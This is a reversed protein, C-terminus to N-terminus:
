RCGDVGLARAYARIRPGIADAGDASGAALARSLRRLARDLSRRAPLGARPVDAPLGLLTAAVSQSVHALALDAGRAAVGDPFRGALADAYTACAPAALRGADASSLAGAPAPTRQRRPGVPTPAVAGADAPAAPHGSSRREARESASAVAFCLGVAIAVGALVAAIRAVM